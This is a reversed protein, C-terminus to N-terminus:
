DILLSITCACYINVICAVFLSKIMMSSTKVKFNTISSIISTLMGAASINGFGCVMFNAIAVSRPSTFKEINKGLIEFAVFENILIKKVFMEGIIEADIPDVGLVPIIYAAVFSLAKLLGMDLVFPRLLLEISKDVFSVFSIIAVVNGIIMQIIFNAEVIADVCKDLVNKRAEDEDSNNNNNDDLTTDFPQLPCREHVISSRTNIVPVFIKAFAFGCPISIISSILLFDVNAGLSVYGFLATFSITSLGTVMLSFLESKNLKELSNRVVVCTETMSLFINMVGFVGETSSIGMIFSLKDSFGLLYDLFGLHRLIAITMLSLYIASLIFFAFVFQDMLMHGYVFTAGIQSFKLYEVIGRGMYIIFDRGYPFYFLLTALMFQFNLARLVVNWPIHAVHRINVIFSILLLATMSCLAYVRKLNQSCLYVVFALIFATIISNLIDRYITEQFIDLFVVVYKYVFRQYLRLRNLVFLVVFGYLFAVLIREDKELSSYVFAYATYITALVFFLATTLAGLNFINSLSTCCGGRQQEIHPLNVITTNRRLNGGEM